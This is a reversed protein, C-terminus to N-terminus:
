VINSNLKVWKCAEFWESIWPAGGDKNPCQDITHEQTQEGLHSPLYVPHCQSYTENIDNLRKTPTDNRNWSRENKFWEGNAKTRRLTTICVISHQIFHQTSCYSKSTSLSCYDICWIYLTNKNSLTCWSLGVYRRGDKSHIDMIVFADRM